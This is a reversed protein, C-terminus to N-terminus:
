KLVIEDKGVLGLKERAIKEIYSPDNELKDKEERLEENAKMLMEIRKEMNRNKEKLQRLKSFGPLFAAILATIILLIFILKKKAM